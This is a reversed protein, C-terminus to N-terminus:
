SYRHLYVLVGNTTITVKVVYKGAGYVQAPPNPGNYTNGNGLDWAYSAIGDVATFSVAPTFSFPACGNGPMNTTNVSPAVIQVFPGKTISNSCGVANSAVQTVNFTGL